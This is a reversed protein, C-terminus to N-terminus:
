AADRRADGTRRVPTAATGAVRGSSRARRYGAVARFIGKRIFLRSSQEHVPIKNSDQARHLFNLPAHRALCGNFTSIRCSRSLHTPWEHIIFSSGSIGQAVGRVGGSFGTHFISVGACLRLRGHNLLKRQTETEVGEAIVKLGLKHAMVIIAESLVM